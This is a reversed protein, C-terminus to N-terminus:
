FKVKEDKTEEIVTAVAAVAPEDTSHGTAAGAGADAPESDPVAAKAPAPEPAPEPSTDPATAVMPTAEIKTFDSM